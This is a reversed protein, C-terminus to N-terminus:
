TEAFKTVDKYSYFKNGAYLGAPLIVGEKGSIEM